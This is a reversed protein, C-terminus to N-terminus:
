AIAAELEKCKTANKFLNAPYSSAAQKQKATTAKGLVKLGFERIRKKIEEFDEPSATEHL